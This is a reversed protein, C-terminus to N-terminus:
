AQYALGLREAQALLRKDRTWLRAHDRKCAALLHTDVFDLGTGHITNTEIFEM